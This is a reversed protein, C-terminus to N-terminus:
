FSSSTEKPKKTEAPQEQKVPTVNHLKVGGVRFGCKDKFAVAKTTLDDRGPVTDSFYVNIGSTFSGDAFSSISFKPFKALKRRLAM